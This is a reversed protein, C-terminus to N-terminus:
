SLLPEPDRVFMSIASPLKPTCCHATSITSITARATAEERATIRGETTGDPPGRGDAHRGEDVRGFGDDDDNDGNGDGDGDNYRM